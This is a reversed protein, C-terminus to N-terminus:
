NIKEKKENYQLISCKFWSEPLYLYKTRMSGPYFTIQYNQISGNRDRRFETLFWLGLM